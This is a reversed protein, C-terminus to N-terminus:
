ETESKLLVLPKPLRKPNPFAEVVMTAPVLLRSAMDIPPTTAVVVAVCTVGNMAPVADVDAIVKVSFSAAPTVIM